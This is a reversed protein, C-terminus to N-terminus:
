EQNGNIDSLTGEKMSESVELLFKDYVIDVVPQFHVAQSTLNNIVKYILSHFTPDWDKRYFKSNTTSEKSMKPSPGVYEANRKRLYANLGLCQSISRQVSYNGYM